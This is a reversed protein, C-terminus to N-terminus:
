EVRERYPDPATTTKESVTEPLPTKEPQIIPAITKAQVFREKLMAFSQDPTITNPVVVPEKTGEEELEGHVEVFMLLEDIFGEQITTLVTTKQEESLSLSAVKTRIDDYSITGAAFLVLDNALDTVVEPQAILAALTRKFAEMEEGFLFDTVEEPLDEVGEEIRTILDDDM